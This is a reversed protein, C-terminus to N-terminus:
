AAVQMQANAAREMKLRERKEKQRGHEWEVYKPNMRRIRSREAGTLLKPKEADVGKGWTYFPKYRNYPDDVDRKWMKIYIRQKKQLYRIYERTQTPTIFVADALQKTMMPTDSLAEKIMEIRKKSVERTFIKAKSNANTM